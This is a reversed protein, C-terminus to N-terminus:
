QPVWAHATATRIWPTGKASAWNHTLVGIPNHAPITLLLARMFEAYRAFQDTEVFRQRCAHLQRKCLRTALHSAQQMLQGAAALMRGLVDLWLLQQERESQLQM